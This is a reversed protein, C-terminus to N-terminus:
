FPNRWREVVVLVADHWSYVVDPPMQDLKNKFENFTLEDRSGVLEIKDDGIEVVINVAELTLWLETEWLERLNADVSVVLRMFEDQGYTRKALFAGRLNEAKWDPPRITVTTEGSPDIDLLKITVPSVGTAKVSM